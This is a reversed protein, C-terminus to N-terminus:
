TKGEGQIQHLVIEADTACVIRQIPIVKELAHKTKTILRSLLLAARLELRPITERKVKAVRTKAAVLTTTVVGEENLCRIYM